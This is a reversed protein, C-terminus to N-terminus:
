GAFLLCRSRTLRLSGDAEAAILALDAAVADKEEGEEIVEEGEELLGKMGKCPKAEAEEGLLTFAEKLREVQSRTEELHNTFALTLAESHAAKIMSPLAKV